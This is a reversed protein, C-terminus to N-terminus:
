ICIADYKAFAKSKFEQTPEINLIRRIKSPQWHKQMLQLTTRTLLTQSFDVNDFLSRLTTLGAGQRLLSLIGAIDDSATGMLEESIGPISTMEDKLQNALQIMDAGVQPPPLPEIGAMGMPADRKVFLARGQGTQFAQRDDVLTGQMIKLTSTGRSEVIDLETRKRRNYLFQIDRISRCM